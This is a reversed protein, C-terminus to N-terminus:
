KKDAAKAAPAAPAQALALTIGLTQLGILAALRTMRSM